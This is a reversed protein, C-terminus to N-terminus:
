VLVIYISQPLIPPSTLKEGERYIHNIDDVIPRLFMNMLPKDSSYFIGLLLM